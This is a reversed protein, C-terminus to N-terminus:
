YLSVSDPSLETLGGRICANAFGAISWLQAIAGRSHNLNLDRYEYIHGNVANNLMIILNQNVFSEGYAKELALLYFTDVFPWTARNHLSNSHEYFPYILPIGYQTFTCGSLARKADEGDVINVLVVFATGLAEHRDEISGDKHKFYAFTGDELRLHRLIANKLNEARLEWENAENNLGLKEAVEAMVCLAKYYLANTSTAKVWVGNNRAEKTNQGFHEPFGYLGVDIFTPQGFFLGDTEDFFPYYFEKFNMDATEYFWKWEDFNNKKFLDYACWIWAVDDTQAIASGMHFIKKLETFTLDLVEVGDIGELESEPTCVFKLKERIKRIAKITTLMENPYLRNLSLLGSYATDRNFAIGDWDKHADYGGAAYIVGHETNICYNKEIDELAIDWMQGFIKDNGTYKINLKPSAQPLTLLNTIRNM